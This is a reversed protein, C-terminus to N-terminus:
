RCCTQNKKKKHGEEIYGYDYNYANASTVIRRVGLNYVCCRPENTLKLNKRANTHANEVGHWFLAIDRGYPKYTYV